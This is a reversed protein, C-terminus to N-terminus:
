QSCDRRTCCIVLVRKTDNISQRSCCTGNRVGKRGSDKQEKIKLKDSEVHSVM